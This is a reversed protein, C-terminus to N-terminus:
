ACSNMTTLYPRITWDIDHWGGWRVGRQMREAHMHSAYPFGISDSKLLQCLSASQAGAANNVDLM